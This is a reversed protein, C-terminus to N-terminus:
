RGIVKDYECELGLDWLGSYILLNARIGEAWAFFKLSFYPEFFLFLNNRATRNKDHNEINKYRTFSKRNKFM